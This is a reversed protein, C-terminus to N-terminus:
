SIALTGLNQTGTQVSVKSFYIGKQALLQQHTGHEKVKGNQFVVIIDANQITSLRHSIMICTRGEQTETDLASTAEDLLLIQPQRILARAIAIRQKQGGSLQTGKDGVRTEYKHPLTINEAISCDFLVPEQSVIGPHARLWQISLKTGAVPDYFRELLQVVTSKGYGSSSVLALTQGKKVKLSLGQLVPVKPWTPYNFVVENFTVNGEFKCPPPPIVNGWGIPSPPRRAAPAQASRRTGPIIGEGRGAPYSRERGAQAGAAQVMDALPSHPGPPVPRRGRALGPPAPLAPPVHACPCLSGMPLRINSEM